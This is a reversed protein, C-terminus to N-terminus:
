LSNNDSDKLTGSYPQFWAVDNIYMGSADYDPNNPVSGVCRASISYTSYGSTNDYLVVCKRTQGKGDIYNVYDGEKLVEEIPKPVDIPPVEGESSNVNTYEDLLDNMKIDENSLMGLTENKNKKAQIILGNNGMIADITITSLIILIVITVILVVLTIGNENKNDRKNM